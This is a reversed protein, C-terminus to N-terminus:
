QALSGGHVVCTIYASLSMHEAPLGQELAADNWRLFKLCYRPPLEQHKLFLIFTGPLFKGAKGVTMLQDKM